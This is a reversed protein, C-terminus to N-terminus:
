NLVIKQSHQHKEDTLRLMYVGKALFSLDINFNTLAGPYQRQYVTKGSMSLVELKVQSAGQWITLNVVGTTPVPHVAVEPDTIESVGVTKCVIPHITMTTQLNPGYSAADNFAYWAGTSWQEWATGAYTSVHERCWLAVTDGTTTPLIIGAYYPGTVTYPQSFTVSTARNNLVDAVITSLPKTASAVMVGPSGNAGSNNWVAFTIDPSSANRAVAFEAVIGTITTGTEFTSFYEAKAKDGYSNNGTIYGSEPPLMFYYIINGDLPYLVTDCETTRAQATNNLPHQWPQNYIKGVARSGSQAVAFVSALLLGLVTLSFPKM